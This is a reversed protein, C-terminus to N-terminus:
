MGDVTDVIADAIADQLNQDTQVFSSLDKMHGYVYKRVDEPIARIKVHLFDPNNLTSSPMQRATTMVNIHHSSRLTHINALLDQSVQKSNNLEDLADVIVYIRSFRSVISQLTQM